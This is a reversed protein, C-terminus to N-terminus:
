RARLEVGTIQEGTTLQCEGRGGGALGQSPARLEFRCRMRGDGKTAVLNAVARRTYIRVFGDADVPEVWEPYEWSVKWEAWYPTWGEWMDDLAQVDKEEAIEHYRGSYASGDPLVGAIEGRRPTLPDAKWALTVVEGSEAGEPEQLTGVATGGSACGVLVLGLAAIKLRCM